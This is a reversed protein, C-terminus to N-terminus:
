YLRIPDPFKFILNHDSDHCMCYKKATDWDPLQIWGWKSEAYTTYMDFGRYLDNVIARGHVEIDVLLDKYAEELLEVDKIIFEVNPAGSKLVNRNAPKYGTYTTHNKPRKVSENMMLDDAYMLGEFFGKFEEPSVDKFEDFIKKIEETKLM